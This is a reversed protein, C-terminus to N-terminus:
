KQCVGSKSVAEAVIDSVRVSYQALGGWGSIAEDEDGPSLTSIDKSRVKEQDDHYFYHTRLVSNSLNEVMKKVAAESLDIDLLDCLLHNKQTQSLKLGSIKQIAWVIDLVDSSHTSLVVRYKRKLLEVVLAMVSLIAKPHLGAELEELIVWDVAKNRPNRGAPLLEYLGLLLPIFERQGASWSMFSVSHSDMAGVNLLIQRQKNYTDQIIKSDHFISKNLGQRLTNKLKGEIPFLQPSNKLSDMFIRLRESFNRVIFPDEIRYGSFPEPWGSRFSLVRQAPIYYVSENEENKQSHSFTFETGNLKMSSQGNRWIHRMGEGLYLDLFNPLDNNWDLHFKNMMNKIYNQDRALKFLQLFISKGTAQPGVLITLDGFTVNVRHFQGLDSLSFSHEQGAM